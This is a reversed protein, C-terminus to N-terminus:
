PRTVRYIEFGGTANRRHYYLSREDPSLAPGEVFGEIARVLQPSGFPNALNSRISRYIRAQLTALDLRTFFLELGNASIAAAYELDSTNVKAMMTSSDPHRVFGSGSRIAVAINATDPFGNGGAFDGDDFYLTSGDASVEVDFNVRGPITIALGTLPASGTVTSGNWTGRYLTDYSLPPNYNATSVYFFENVADMTPVGDVAATNIGSLAAQFQFTTDDVRTAYFLNKDPGDDNFFLYAGDRSIFPEMADGSYGTITVAESAGFASYDPSPLASGGLAGSVADLQADLFSLIDTDTVDDVCAAGAEIAHRELKAWKDLLAAECRSYNPPEMRAIAKFLAKQRCFAYKGAVKNKGAACRDQPTIASSASAVLLSGVALIPLVGRGISGSM